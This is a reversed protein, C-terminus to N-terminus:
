KLLNYKKLKLYLNSRQIGTIEAMKTVNGGSEEFAKEMYRREFDTKEMNFPKVPEEALGAASAAVRAGAGNKLYDPLDEVGIVGKQKVVLINEVANELERINGHWPACTLARMAEKDCTEVESNIRKRLKGIFHNVLLPIDESRERLPPLHIPVVNIRYYLDERFSGKKVEAELNKNTATILRFDAKITKYSGMRCFEKEQLVRLMSSQLMPSMDGMEDLFLTGGQAEEFCGATTKHAGTFSGKEYGFLAATLLQEPLAACNVAIFPGDKRGSRRHVEKALLEKGTGSEGTILVTSDIQAVKSVKELIIKMAPNHSVIAGFNSNELIRKLKQNEEELQQNERELTILRGARELVYDVQEQKIPKVLYDFAGNKIASVADAVTAYATMMIVHTKARLSIISALTDLGSVGPLNQDLFVVDFDTTQNILDLGKEGDPATVVSFGCRSIRQEMVLLEDENDDIVLAKGKSSM